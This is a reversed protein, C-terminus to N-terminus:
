FSDQITLNLIILATVTSLFILYLQEGMSKGKAYSSSTVTIELYFYLLLLEFERKKSGTKNSM